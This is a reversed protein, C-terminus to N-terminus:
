VAWMESPRLRWPRLDHVQKPLGSRWAQTPACCKDILTTAHSSRKPTALRARVSSVHPALTCSYLGLADDSTLGCHPAVNYLDLHAGCSNPNRSGGGPAGRALM